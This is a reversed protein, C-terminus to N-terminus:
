ETKEGEKKECKEKDNCEKKDKDSCEKDKKEKHAAKDKGANECGEHALTAAPTTMALFALVTLTALLKKM